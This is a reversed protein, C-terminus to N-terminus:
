KNALQETASVITDRFEAAKQADTIIIVGDEGYTVLISYQAGATMKNQIKSYDASVIYSYYLMQVLSLDSYMRIEYKGSGNIGSIMIMNSDDGFMIMCLVGNSTDKDPDSFISYGSALTIDAQPTDMLTKLAEFANEALGALPVLTITVILFVAILKKVSKM